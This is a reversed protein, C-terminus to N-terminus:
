YQTEKPQITSNEAYPDVLLRAFRTMFNRDRMHQGDHIENDQEKRDEIQRNKNELDFALM